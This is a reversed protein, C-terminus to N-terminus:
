KEENILKELGLMDFPEWREEVYGVPVEPLTSPDSISRCIDLFPCVGYKGFCSDENRPFLGPTLQQTNAYRDEEFSIRMIWEKTDYVWEQLLPWSHSVPIFKFADHVKKHVLSADVWVSSLKPYYLTGAFQYGKIQPAAYWSDCYDRQFQGQIAYATTTKHELIIIQGNYEIVKDLRGVYWADELEPFPIALPQEIALVRSNALMRSNHEVYNYFMENAIGPTRPSLADAEELSIEPDFGDEEWQLNFALMAQTVLEETDISAAGASMQEAAGGWVADMGAHWSSGFVLAPAKSNGERTWGLVHRIFYSRPCKKYDAIKTNDYARSQRTFTTL